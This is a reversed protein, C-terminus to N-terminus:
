SGNSTSKIDKNKPKLKLFLLHPKYKYCLIFGVSLINVGYNLIVIADIGLLALLYWLFLIEGVFWMWLFLVDLHDATKQKLVRRAAPIGCTALLISGIIGVVKIM